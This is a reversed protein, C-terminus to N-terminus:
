LTPFFFVRWSKHANATNLCPSFLDQNEVWSDRNAASPHQGAQLSCHMNRASSRRGPLAWCCCSRPTLQGGEQCSWWLRQVIFLSNISSNGRGWLHDKKLWPQPVNDPSPFFSASRNAQARRPVFLKLKSRRGHSMQRTLHFRPLPKSGGGDASTRRHHGRLLNRHGPESQQRVPHQNQPFFPFTAWIFDRMTSDSSFLPRSCSFVKLSLRSASTLTSASPRSRHM